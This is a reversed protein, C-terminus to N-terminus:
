SIRVVLPRYVSSCASPTQPQTSAVLSSMSTYGTQSAQPSHPALVADTTISVSTDPNLRQLAAEYTQTLHAVQTYYNEYDRSSLTLSPLDVLVQTDIIYNM